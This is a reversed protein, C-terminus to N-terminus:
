RLFFCVRADGDIRRPAVSLSKPHIKSNLLSSPKLDRLDNLQKKLENEKTKDDSKEKAEALKLRLNADERKQKKIFLKRPPEWAAFFESPLKLEIVNQRRM